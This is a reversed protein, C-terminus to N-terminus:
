SNYLCTIEEKYRHHPHLDNIWQMLSTTVKIFQTFVMANVRKYSLQTIKLQHFLTKSPRLFAFLKGTEILSWVDKVTMLLLFFGVKALAM